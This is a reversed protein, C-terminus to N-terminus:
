RCWAGAVRRAVDAILDAGYGEGCGAELVAAGSCDAASSRPRVIRSTSSLRIMASSASSIRRLSPASRTSTAEFTPRAM